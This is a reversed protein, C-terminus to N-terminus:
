IFKSDLSANFDDITCISFLTTQARAVTRYLFFVVVLVHIFPLSFLSRNRPAMVTIQIFSLFFLSSFIFYFNSFVPSALLNIETQTRRHARAWFSLLLFSRLPCLCLFSLFFSLFSFLGLTRGDTRCIHGSPQPLPSRPLSFRICGTQGFSCM